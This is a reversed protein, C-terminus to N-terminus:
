SDCKLKPPDYWGIAVTTRVKKYTLLNNMCFYYDVGKKKDDFIITFEYNGHVYSSDIKNYKSLILMLEETIKSEPDYWYFLKNEKELYKTPFYPHSTGIKNEPHLVLKDEFGIISIGIIKDSLTDVNVSFIRDKKSLRETHLFDIIANQVADNQNGNSM